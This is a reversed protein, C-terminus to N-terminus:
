SPRAFKTSKMSNAPIRLIGSVIVVTFSVSGSLEENGFETAQQPSPTHCRLCTNYPLVSRTVRYLVSAARTGELKSLLMRSDISNM